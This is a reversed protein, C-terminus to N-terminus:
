YKRNIYQTISLVIVLEILTWMWESVRQLQDTRSSKIHKVDNLRKLEHVLTSTTTVIFGLILGQIAYDLNILGNM